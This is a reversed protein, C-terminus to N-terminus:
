RPMEGDVFAIAVAALPDRETKSRADEAIRDIAEQQTAAVREM